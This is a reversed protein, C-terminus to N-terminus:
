KVLGAAWSLVAESSRLAQQYEAETVPESWGPYRTEVAYDTLGAAAGVTLPVTIGAGNLQELLKGIDHTYSFRIGHHIMVAKIAKEAAQQADFCLDEWFGEPPKEQSARAFSGRARRLWQHAANKAGSEPQM